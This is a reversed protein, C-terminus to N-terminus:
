ANPRTIRWTAADGINEEKKKKEKEDDPHFTTVDGNNERRLRHPGGEDNMGVKSVISTPRDFRVCTATLEDRVSRLSQEVRREVGRLMEDDKRGAERMMETHDWVRCKGDTRKTEHCRVQNLVDLKAIHDGTMRKSLDRMDSLQQKSICADPAICLKGDVYFNPLPNDATGWFVIDHDSTLGLLGAPAAM